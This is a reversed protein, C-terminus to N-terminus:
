METQALSPLLPPEPQEPETPAIPAPAAEEGDMTALLHLAVPHSAAFRRASRFHGRAAALDGTQTFAWGAVVQLESKHFDWKVLAALGKRVKKFLEPDQFSAELDLRDAGDLWGKKHLSRLRRGVQDWDKEMTSCMLLGVHPRQDDPLVEAASVFDARADGYAGRFFREMGRELREMPALDAVPVPTIDDTGLAHSAVDCENWPYDQGICTHGGWVPRETANALRCPWRRYFYSRAHVHAPQIQIRYLHRRLLHWGSGHAIFRAQHIGDYCAARAARRAYTGAYMSRGSWGSRVFRPGCGCARGRGRGWGSTEWADASRAPLFALGLAILCLIAFSRFWYSKGM